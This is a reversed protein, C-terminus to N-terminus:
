LKCLSCEYKIYVTSVYRQYNYLHTLKIVVMMIPKELLKIKSITIANNRASREGQGVRKWIGGKEKLNM